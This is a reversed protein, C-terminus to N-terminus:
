KIKVFYQGPPAEIRGGNPPLQLSIAKMESYEPLVIYAPFDPSDFLTLRYVVNDGANVDTSDTTALTSYAITSTSDHHWIESEYKIDKAVYETSILLKLNFPPQEIGDTAPIILEYIRYVPPTGEFYGRRTETARVAQPFFAYSPVPVARLQNDKSSVVPLYGYLRLM